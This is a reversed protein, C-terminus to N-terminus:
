AARRLGVPDSPIARVQSVRYERRESYRERWYREWSRACRAAASLHTHWHGCWEGDQDTAIWRWSQRPLSRALPEGALRGPMPDAGITEETPESLLWLRKTSGDRKEAFVWGEDRLERLRQSPNTVGAARMERMSVGDNGAALLLGVIEDCQTVRVTTM